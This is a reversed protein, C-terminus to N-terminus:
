KETDRLGHELLAGGEGLELSGAVFLVCGLLLGVGGLPLVDELASLGVDLLVLGGFILLDTEAASGLGSSIEEHGSFGLDSDDDADTTDNTNSGLHLLDQLKEAKPLDVVSDEDLQVLRRDVHKAEDLGVNRVAVGGRM